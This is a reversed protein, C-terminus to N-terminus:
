RSLKEVLGSSGDVRLRDGTQIQETVRDVGVVAPIGYERAVIAGHTMMGGTEMVLGGAALFLPTWAPDTAPCVLIEGPALNADHPDFVVHAIGEVVGPSVPSGQLSGKLDGDTHSGPRMGEYYTRGNSLILRPIQKRRMERAYNDRHGAIIVKWDREEGAAFAELEDLSLYFLDDQRTLRGQQVLRAGNALLQERMIGMMQIIYFKPSERLGGLARVRRAAGGIIRAKIGGAFTKKAATQLTQIAAEAESAGRQFVMDPAALEDTIQLYSQLTQIIQAPNERWRPRGIDIEGLGRMGYKNLFADLANQATEPLRRALYDEALQASSQTRMVQAASEDAQIQRATQWLILDMETTVNNPLGRTITLALQNNGSFQNSFKNLLVLPLLGVMAGAAIEPVAYPFANQIQRFLLISESLDEPHSFLTELKVLETEYNRKIEAAKDEPDKAFYRARRIMGRMFKAMRHITSLRLKGRGAEIKPDASIEKLSEASGPEVGTLVKPWIRNGIPHRIIGTMNGWLREGAQYLVGQTHHNVDFGFLSAGGAFILRIADQGLPTMPSLLGQVAGFSFYVKLFGDEPGDPLPYLSTIPRSQLITLKDEAWAWEIDQPFGFHAEIQKGIRTLELIVDDPVAQIQSADSEQKEVGGGSVGRIALAKAGLTKQIIRNGQTDVVYHDPEVQGSVLAEGLGLTADIATESRVGTLPNATFLVGSAQSQVMRQVIVSLSVETQLIQNRARYGIARATWLSAWCRVVADALAQEGIINLYTDQQGAFSMDPLDEATASSRVAVPAAGLWPWGIQLAHTMEPGIQGATFADRIQTSAAELADPDTLDTGSLIANIQEELHNASVFERYASTPVMFANPVPFGGQALAILNAGKGGVAEFAAQPTHLPILPEPLREPTTM